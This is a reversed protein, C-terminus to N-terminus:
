GIERGACPRRLNKRDSREPHAGFGVRDSKRRRRFHPREARSLVPRTQTRPEPNEGEGFGRPELSPLRRSLPVARAGGAGLTQGRPSTKREKEWRFLKTAVFTAIATTVLLALIAPWNQWVTENRMIIGSMGSMLHTAPIFQTVSQLWEPFVVIPITMGSLFLMAMYLPQILLNSEQSSNVVSAIILGISRFAVAGVAVFVFFSILNSPITMGYFQHALFLTLVVAPFYLLVGTTMSAVLLPVPSIPTVKYRRLVNAERDMVARMGAGFLGNGLIGLALVMTVVQNIAAGQQAKFLLAFVFFFILPFFYNFFLVAKNRLALKLDIRMLALLAKM